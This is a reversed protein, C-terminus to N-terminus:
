RVVKGLISIRKPLEPRYVETERNFRLRPYVNLLLVRSQLILVQETIPLQHYNKGVIYTLFEPPCDFRM